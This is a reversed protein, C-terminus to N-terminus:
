TFNPHFLYSVHTIHTGCLGCFHQKTYPAHHPTFVRKITSPPEDPFFAYTTSHIQSLPVRLSLAKWILVIVLARQPCGVISQETMMSCRYSKLRIRRSRSSTTTAAALALGESPSRKMWSQLLDSDASNTNLFAHIHVYILHRLSFMKTM